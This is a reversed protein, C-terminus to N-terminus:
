QMAAQCGVSPRRRRRRRDVVLASAQESPLGCQLAAVAESPLLSPQESGPANEGERTREGGAFFFSSPFFFSARQCVCVHVSAHLYCDTTTGFWVEEKKRGRESPRAAHVGFCFSLFFTLLHMGLLFCCRPPPVSLLHFLPSRFPQNTLGSRLLSRSRHSKLSRGRQDSQLKRGEISKFIALTLPSIGKGDTLLLILLAFFFSFLDDTFPPM